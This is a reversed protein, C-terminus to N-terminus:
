KRVEIWFSGGNAGMIKRRPTNHKYHSSGQQLAATSGDGNYRGKLFPLIMEEEVRGIDQDKDMKVLERSRRLIGDAGRELPVFYGTGYDDVIVGRVVLVFDGIALNSAVRIGIVINPEIGSRQSVIGVEFLGAGGDDLRFMGVEQSLDGSSVVISSNINKHEGTDVVRVMQDAIRRVMEELTALKADLSMSDWKSM